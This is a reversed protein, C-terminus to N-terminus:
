FYKYIIFFTQEKKSYAHSDHVSLFSEKAEPNLTIIKPYNPDVSNLLRLSKVRLARIKFYKSIRILESIKM